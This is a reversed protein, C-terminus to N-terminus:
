RGGAPPVARPGPSVRAATGDLVPHRGLCHTSVEIGTGGLVRCRM